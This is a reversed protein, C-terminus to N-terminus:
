ITSPADWNIPLFVVPLMYASLLLIHRPLGDRAARAAPTARAAPAVHAAPAARGAHAVHATPEVRAGRAVTNRHQTDREELEFYGRHRGTQVALFASYLGLSMLGLFVEQPFSLTPGPTTQTFDPMILALVALPIIVSLYTNAGQLNFHQERHRWAGFLLAAGVMGNLIIMIVRLYPTGFWTPNNQGHVMVASISTAEIATVSLTLILTGFPEGLREALQEAHRVVQLSSGLIAGFLGVFIVARGVPTTFEDQLGDGFLWFVAATVLSVGLFWESRLLSPSSKRTM